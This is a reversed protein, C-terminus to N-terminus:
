SRRGWGELWRAKAEHYAPPHNLGLVRVRKDKEVVTSLHKLMVKHAAKTWISQDDAAVHHQIYIQKLSSPLMPEQTNEWLRHDLARYLDLPLFRLPRELVFSLSRLTPARGSIDRLMDAPWDTSSTLTLHRLAPFMPDDDVPLNRALVPGQVVLNELRPLPVPVLLSTRPIGSVLHLTELSPAVCRLVKCLAISTNSEEEWCDHSDTKLLRCQNKRTPTDQTM